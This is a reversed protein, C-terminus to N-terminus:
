PWLICSILSERVGKHAENAFEFAKKIMELENPGQVRKKAAELLDEYAAQVMGIDEKTFETM